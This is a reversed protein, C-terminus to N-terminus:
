CRRALVVRGGVGGEGLLEGRQGRFDGVLGAQRGDRDADVAVIRGARVIVVPRLVNQGVPQGDAEHGAKDGIVAVHLRGAGLVVREQQVVGNRIGAAKQIPRRSIGVVLRQELLREALWAELTATMAM